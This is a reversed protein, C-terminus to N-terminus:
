LLLLYICGKFVETETQSGGCFSTHDTAQESDGNGSSHIGTSLSFPVLYYAINESLFQFVSFHLSFAELSYTGLRDQRGHEQAGAYLSTGLINQILIQQSCTVETETSCLINGCLLSSFFEIFPNNNELAILSILKPKSLM